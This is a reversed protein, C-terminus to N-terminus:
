GSLPNNLQEKKCYLCPKKQTLAHGSLIEFCLTFVYYWNGYSHYGHYSLYMHHLFCLTAIITLM